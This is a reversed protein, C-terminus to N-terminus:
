AGMKDLHDLADHCADAVAHWHKHAPDLPDIGDAHKRAARAASLLSDVIARFEPLTMKQRELYSSHFLHRGVGRSRSVSSARVRREHQAGRSPM